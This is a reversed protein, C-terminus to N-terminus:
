LDYPIKRFNQGKLNLFSFFFCHGEAPMKKKTKEANSNKKKKADRGLKKLWLIIILPSQFRNQSSLVM